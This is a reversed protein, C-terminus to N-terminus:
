RTRKKKRRDLPSKGKDSRHNGASWSMLGFAGCVALLFLIVELVISM